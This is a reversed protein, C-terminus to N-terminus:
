GQPGDMTFGKVADPLLVAPQSLFLDPKWDAVRGALVRRDRVLQIENIVTVLPPCRVGATRGWVGM